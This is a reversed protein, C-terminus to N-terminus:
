CCKLWAVKMFTPQRSVEAEGRLAEAAQVRDQCQAPLGEATHVAVAQDAVKQTPVVPLGEPRAHLQKCGTLPTRLEASRTLCAVTCQLARLVTIWAVELQQCCM